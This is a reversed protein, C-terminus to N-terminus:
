DMLSKRHPRGQQRPNLEKKQTHNPITGDDPSTAKMIRRNIEYGWRDELCSRSGTFLGREDPRLSGSLTFVSRQQHVQEVVGADFSEM